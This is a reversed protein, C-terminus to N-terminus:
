SEHIEEVMIKNWIDSIDELSMFKYSSQDRLVEEIIKLAEKRLFKSRVLNYRSIIEQSESLNAAHLKLRRTINDSIERASSKYKVPLVLRTMKHINEDPFRWDMNIYSEKERRIKGFEYKIVFNIKFANVIYLDSEVEELQDDPLDISINEISLGPVMNIKFSKM